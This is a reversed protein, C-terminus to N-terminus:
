STFAQEERSDPRRRDAAEAEAGDTFEDYSTQAKRWNPV